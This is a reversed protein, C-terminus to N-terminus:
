KVEKRLFSDIRKKAESKTIEGTCSSLVAMIIEPKTGFEDSLGKANEILVPVPFAPEKMREQKEAM